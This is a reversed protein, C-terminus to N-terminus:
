LSCGVEVIAIHRGGGGNSADFVIASGDHSWEPHKEDTTGGTLQVAEADGDARKVYIAYTGERNSEFAIWEGGPSWAPSRGQRTTLQRPKTPRSLPAVWIELAGSRNSAFAVQDGHPSVTVKGDYHPGSTVQEATQPDIVWIHNGSSDKSRRTVVIRQGDPLWQPYFDSVDHETSYPQAHTGKARVTWIRGLAKNGGRSARFAVVDGLPSWAPRTANLDLTSPTLAVGTGGAIDTVWLRSRRENRAAFVIKDGRPSLDPWAASLYEKNDVRVRRVRFPPQLSCPASRHVKDASATSVEGQPGSCAGAVLVVVLLPPLATSM